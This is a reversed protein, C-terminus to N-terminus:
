TNRERRFVEEIYFIIQEIYVIREKETLFGGFVFDKRKKGEKRTEEQMMMKRTTEVPTTFDQIVIPKKVLELIFRKIRNNYNDALKQTLVKHQINKEENKKKEKEEWQAEKKKKEYIYYNYM